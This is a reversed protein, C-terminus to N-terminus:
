IKLINSRTKKTYQFYRYIKLHNRFLLSFGTSFCPRFELLSHLMFIACFCLQGILHRFAPPYIDGTIIDLLRLFNLYM